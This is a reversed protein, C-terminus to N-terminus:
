KICVDSNNSQPTDPKKNEPEATVKIKEEESDDEKKARSDKIWSLPDSGLRAKKKM